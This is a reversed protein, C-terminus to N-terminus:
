GLNPRELQAPDQAQSDGQGDITSTIAPSPLSNSSPPHDYSLRITTVGRLRATLQQNVQHETVSDPPLPVHLAALLDFRHRDFALGIMAGYTEAASVAARYALRAGLLAAAICGVLWLPYRWLMVAAALACGVLVACFRAAVDMQNRSDDVAERVEPSLVTYLAPWLTVSDL